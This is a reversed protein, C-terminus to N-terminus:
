WSATRFLRGEPGEDHLVLTVEDDHFAPKNVAPATPIDSDIMTIVYQIGIECHGRIVELLNQKKRDDLSEFVGDHFVFRPFPEDTHSRLVALDFAICLLKRYTHGLGASTANGSEDLIDARFELHGRQNPAVSLLAKRDIVQEIIESFYLRITSFRSTGDANQAEVDSEISTQLHVRQEFLDRIETRLEQLRHLFGRQRELSV